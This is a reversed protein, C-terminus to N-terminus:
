HSAAANRNYKNITAFFKKKKLEKFHKTETCIWWEVM